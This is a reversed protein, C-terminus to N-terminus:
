AAGPDISFESLAARANAIFRRVELPDKRGPEREVGSVVDVGWPRVREVAGAVNDASLGGALIVRISRSLGDISSWDFAEGSGPTPSDLLAADISFDGIRELRPDDATFAQIVMDVGRRLYTADAPTESGHLQVGLLGTQRVIELITDPHENRFVGVTLLGPPLEAVIRAVADPTVQRTSEAFVFGVADAGLACALLSDEVTTNGCIKV